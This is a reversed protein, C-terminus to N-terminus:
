VSHSAKCKVNGTSELLSHPTSPHTMPLAQLCPSCMLWRGGVYAMSVQFHALQQLPQESGHLYWLVVGKFAPMTTLLSGPVAAQGETVDM